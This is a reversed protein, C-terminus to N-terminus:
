WLYFTCLLCVYGLAFTVLTTASFSLGFNHPKKNNPMLLQVALGSICFTLAPLFMQCYDGFSQPGLSNKMVTLAIYAWFTSVLGAMLGMPCAIWLDSRQAAGANDQNQISDPMSM